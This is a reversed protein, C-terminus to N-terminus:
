HVKPNRPLCFNKDKFVLELQRAIDEEDIPSLGVDHWNSVHFMVLSKMKDFVEDLSDGSVSLGMETCTAEFRGDPHLQIDVSFRM